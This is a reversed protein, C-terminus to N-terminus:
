SPRARGLVFPEVRAVVGGPQAVPAAFVLRAPDLTSLPTVDQVTM